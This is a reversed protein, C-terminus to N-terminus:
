FVKIVIGSADALSVFREKEVLYMKGSEIAIGSFRNRALNEMTEPGVTPVDWRLDQDPRSAKAMVCGPGALRGAREIAADTGEIAEVAVINRDKVIVTQGIDLGALDRAAKFGFDMDGLVREDPEAKSLIGRPPALHSLYERGDIVEVGIRALRRTFEELISYDKKDGLGNMAKVYERDRPTNEDYIVSKDIKGILAIKKIRNALLLFVFKKYQTVKMWYAREAEKAIEPSAMDQVAFVILKDGKARVSRAFEM